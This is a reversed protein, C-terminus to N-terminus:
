MLEGLSTAIRLLLADDGEELGLDAAAGAVISIPDCPDSPPQEPPSDDTQAVAISEVPLAQPEGTPTAIAPPRLSPAAADLSIEKEGSGGVVYSLFRLYGVAEEELTHHEAVYRRAAGSMAARVDPRRALLLLYELLLEEEIDSVDIKGAADDPLEKFSGTRSVLVPVGAGMIRLLSASTEGATPYRLNVCVDSAALYLAFDHPSVYGTYRVHNSLGLMEIQQTPDYNPSRSGVLLYLSNPAEMLLAKFARLTASVRKYPNLHGVSTALFLGPDLGLRARAEAKPIYLPLPVGMPVMALPVDARVSRVLGAMYRSHVIVGTAKNIVEDSLPYNFLAEPFQGLMVRRAAEKGESGHQREMIEMYEKRRGGNLAIWVRLHHLVFEHMVVVNHVPPVGPYCMLENYMYAHAPSNGMQYVAADYRGAVRKYDKGPLVEFRGTIEGNSPRYGRDIFLDIDVRRSGVRAGALALLLEESYDSIGSQVPNLPTFFAIKM